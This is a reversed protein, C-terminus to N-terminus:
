APRMGYKLFLWQYLLAICMVLYAGLYIADSIITLSNAQEISWTYLGSIELIAYILDSFAFVIVGLWPRSFAGGTFQHALRVAIIALLLDAVPYFSNVVAPWDKDAGAISTILLYTVFTFTVVYLTAIFSRVHIKSVPAHSLIQYQIFLALGLIPYSIIWFVDPLGVPVEGQTVNLYGWILEALSWSFLALSFLGWIRRPADTKDYLRWIFMAIGAATLSAVILFMNTLILNWLEPFPEFWYVLTYLLLYLIAAVYAIWLTRKFSAQATWGFRMIGAEQAM